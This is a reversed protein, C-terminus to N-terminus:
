TYQPRIKDDLKCFFTATSCADVISTNRQTYPCKIELTGKPSGDEDCIVGDPSAALFGHESIYLGCNRVKLKSSREYQQRAIPENHKGWQISSTSLKSQTPYLKRQAHGEYTRCKIIEGFGSSTLRGYREEHWRKSDHQKRTAQEIAAIDHPSPTLMEVLKEGYLLIDHVSVPQILQTLLLHRIREQSSRPILPLQPGQSTVVGPLVHLLAIDSGKSELAQRLSQIEEATTCRLPVPRPDYPVVTPKRKTKGYEMKIFKIEEIDASDLTRKRPQNWTQLQSTCPVHDRLQHIRCFDELAYCKAAIHKCSGTPGSGAACGYQAYVIDGSSNNLAIRIAYITNKKMEPLCSAQYYTTDGSTSKYAMINQIHGDKFLPFARSNINKFDNASKGDSAIRTIFYNTINGITFQPPAHVQLLPVFFSSSPWDKNQMGTTFTLHFHYIDTHTGVGGM